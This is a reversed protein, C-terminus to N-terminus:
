SRKAVESEQFPPYFGNQERFAERVAIAAPWYLPYLIKGQLHLYGDRDYSEKLKSPDGPPASLWRVDSWAIFREPKYRFFARIGGNEIIIKLPRDYFERLWLVFLFGIAIACGAAAALWKGAAVGAILIAFLFLIAMAYIWHHIWESHPPNNYELIQQDM